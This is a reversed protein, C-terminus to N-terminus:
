HTPTGMSGYQNYQTPGGMQTPTSMQVSQVSQVPTGMQQTQQASIPTVAASRTRLLSTLGDNAFSQIMITALIIVAGTLIGLWFYVFSNNHGLFGKTQM